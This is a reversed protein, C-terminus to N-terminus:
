IAVGKGLYAFEAAFNCFINYLLFNKFTKKTMDHSKQIKAHLLRFVVLVDYM